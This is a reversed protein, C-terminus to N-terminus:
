GVNLRRLVVLEPRGTGRDCVSKAAEILRSLEAASYHTTIRGSRHGLLDQRDEFSVGAARLRRGFTHKLDHVRVTPLDARVRAKRWASNLMRAVPKGRFSFVHTPHKGRMSNVVSLAIRNLVVVREDGNKVLEGPIIFIKTKLTPVDVEWEWQLNCIENVRCGTNVAFLAMEALHPPLEKFLVDQKDWSLPYPPQKSHDPLLRIKAAAQFWTM